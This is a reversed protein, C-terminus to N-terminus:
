CGTVEQTEISRMTWKLLEHESDLLLPKARSFLVTVIALSRSSEMLPFFRQSQSAHKNTHSALVQDIGGHSCHPWHIILHLQRHLPLCM